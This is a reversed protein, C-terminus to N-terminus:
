IMFSEDYTCIINCLGGTESVSVRAVVHMSEASVLQDDTVTREEGAM